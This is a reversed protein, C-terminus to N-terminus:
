DVEPQRWQQDITERLAAEVCDLSCAYTQPLGGGGGDIEYFGSRIHIGVAPEDKTHEEEAGCKPNDCRYLTRTIKAMM